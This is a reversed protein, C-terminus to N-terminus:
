FKAQLMLGTLTWPCNATILTQCHECQLCTALLCIEGAALCHALWGALNWVQNVDGYLRPGSQYWHLQKFNRGTYILTNKSGSNVTLNRPTDKGHWPNARIWWGQLCCCSNRCWVKKKQRTTVIFCWTRTTLFTAVQHVLSHPPVISSYIPLLFASSHSSRDWLWILSMKRWCPIASM